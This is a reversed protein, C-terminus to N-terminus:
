WQPISSDKRFKAFRPARQPEIRAQTLTAFRKFVAFLALPECLEALANLKPFTAQPPQNSSCCGVAFRLLLLYAGCQLPSQSEHGGRQRTTPQRQSSQQGWRM